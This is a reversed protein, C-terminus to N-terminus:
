FLVEGGEFHNYRGRPTIHLNLQYLYLVSFGSQALTFTRYVNATVTRMVENLIAMSGLFYTNNRSPLDYFSYKLPDLIKGLTM